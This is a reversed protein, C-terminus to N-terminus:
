EYYRGKRFLGRKTLRKAFHDEVKRSIRSLANIDESIPNVYISTFDM